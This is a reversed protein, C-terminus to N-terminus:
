SQGTSLLIKQGLKVVGKLGTATDFVRDGPQYGFRTQMQKLIDPLLEQGKAKQSERKAKKYAKYAAQMDMQFELSPIDNKLQLQVQMLTVAYGKKKVFETIGLEMYPYRAILAKTDPHAFIDPSEQLFSRFSKM